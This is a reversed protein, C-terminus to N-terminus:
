GCGGGHDGDLSSMEVNEPMSFGISRKEGLEQLFIDLRDIGWYRNCGSTFMPVGFVDRKYVTKISTMIEVGISCSQASKMIEDAKVSISSLVDAMAEFSWITKGELWRREMVSFYFRDRLDLDSIALFVRHPIEWDPKKDVPWHIKLGKSKALRDFDRLIYLHKAKTMPTYPFILGQKQCEELTKGQPEFVPIHNATSPAIGHEKLKLASLFSYPSRFSFFIEM